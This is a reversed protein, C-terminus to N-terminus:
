SCGQSTGCTQCVFCTGTRLFFNGGCTGCPPHDTTAISEPEKFPEPEPDPIVCITPESQVPASFAQMNVPKGNKGPEMESIVVYSNLIARLMQVTSYKGLMQEIQKNIEPM